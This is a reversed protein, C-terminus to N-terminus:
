QRERPGVDETPSEIIELQVKLGDRLGQRLEEESLPPPPEPGEGRRFLAIMPQGPFDGSPPPHRARKESAV